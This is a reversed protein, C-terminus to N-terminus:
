VAVAAAAASAAAAEAVGAVLGLGSPILDLAPAQRVDGTVSFASRKKRYIQLSLPPPPFPFDGKGREKESGFPGM